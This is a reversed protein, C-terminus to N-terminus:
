EPNHGFLRGVGFTVAMAIWGGLLVRISAKIQHAGGLWASIVGFALLAATAAASVSILRYTPNQLFVAAVIPVGGGVTFSVM